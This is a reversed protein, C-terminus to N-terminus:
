NGGGVAAQGGPQVPIGAGSRDRGKLHRKNSGAGQMRRLIEPDIGADTIVMDIQEVPCIDV